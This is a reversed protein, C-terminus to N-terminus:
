RVPLQCSVFTDLEKLMTHRELNKRLNVDESKSEGSPTILGVKSVRYNLTYFFAHSTKVRQREIM